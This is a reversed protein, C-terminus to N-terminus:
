RLSATLPHLMRLGVSPCVNPFEDPDFEHGGTPEFDQLWNVVKAMAAPFPNDGDGNVWQLRFTRDGKESQRGPMSIEAGFSEAEKRILGGHNESTDRLQPSVLLNKLQELKESALKGQLYKTKGDVTRLIRYGGDSFVAICIHAATDPQTMASNNYALRALLSLNDSHYVQAYLNSSVFLIAALSLLRSDLRM